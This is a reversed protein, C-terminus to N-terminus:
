SRMSGFREPRRVKDRQHSREAEAQRDGSLALSASPESMAMAADYQAPKLSSGRGGDARALVRKAGCFSALYCAGILGACLASPACGAFLSALNAANFGQSRVGEWIVRTSAGQAQCRM